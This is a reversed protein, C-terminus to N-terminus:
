IIRRVEEATAPKYDDKSYYNKNVYETISSIVEEKSDIGSLLANISSTLLNNLGQKVNTKSM